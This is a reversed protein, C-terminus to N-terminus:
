RFTLYVVNDTESTCADAAGDLTLKAGGKAINTLNQSSSSENTPILTSYSCGDGACIGVYGNISPSGWTSQAVAMCLNDSLQSIKLMFYDIKKPSRLHMIEFRVDNSDEFYKDNASEIYELGEPYSKADSVYKAMNHETGPSTTIVEGEGTNDEVFEHFVMRTKNALVGIEDIVVNARHANSMKSILAFGGVTLVGIIALVGLMEIMSRGRENQTINRM